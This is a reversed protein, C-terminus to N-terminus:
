KVLRANACHDSGILRRNSGGTEDILASPGVKSCIIVGVLATEAM